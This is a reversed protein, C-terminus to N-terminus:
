GRWQAVAGLYARREAARRAAHSMQIFATRAEGLLSLAKLAFAVDHAPLVLGTEARSVVARAASMDSSLVPRGSAMAHEAIAADDRAGVLLVLDCVEPALDVVEIQADRAALAEALENAFDNGGALGLRLREGPAVPLKLAHPALGGHLEITREPCALWEAVRPSATVFRDAQQLLRESLTSDKPLAPLHLTSACGAARAALLPAEHEAGVLHLEACGYQTILERLLAISAGTPAILSQRPASVRCEVAVARALLPQLETERRLAFLVVVPAKGAAILADLLPPLTEADAADACVMVARGSAADGDLAGSFRPLCPMGLARGIRHWHLLPNVGSALGMARRYGETSFSPSPDCGAEAGHRLYYTVPDLGSAVVDPVARRLWHANFRGSQSLLDYDTCRAPKGSPDIAEPARFPRVRVDAGLHLDKAVEHWYCAAALYASQAEVEDPALPESKDYPHLSLPAKPVEVGFSSAGFVAEIRLAYERAAAAGTVADWYGLRDRLATRFLLSTPDPGIWGEGDWRAATLTEDLAVGASLSAQRAPNALLPQMQLAIRAPHAWSQEPALAIFAGRAVALAANFAAAVGAVPPAPLLQFRADSAAIEQAASSREGGVLLVELNRWSQGALSSLAHALPAEGAKGSVPVVISVLPLDSRLPAVNATLRLRRPASGGNLLLPPVGYPAHLRWLLPSFEWDDALTVSAAQLVRGLAGNPGSLAGLAFNAAEPAERLLAAHAALVYPQANPWLHRAATESRFIYLLRQVEAWAGRRAHLCAMAYSAQLRERLSGEARVERLGPLAFATDGAALLASLWTARDTLAQTM